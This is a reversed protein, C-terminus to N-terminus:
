DKTAQTFVLQDRSMELTGFARHTHLENGFRNIKKREERERSNRGWSIEKKSIPRSTSSCVLPKKTVMVLNDLDEVTRSHTTDEISSSM